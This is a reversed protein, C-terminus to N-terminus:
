IHEIYNSTFLFLYVERHSITNREGGAYRVKKYQDM